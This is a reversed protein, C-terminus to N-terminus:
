ILMLIMQLYSRGVDEEVEVDGGLDVVGVVVVVVRDELDVERKTVTGFYLDVFWSNFFICSCWALFEHM